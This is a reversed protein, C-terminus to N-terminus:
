DADAEVMDADEILTDSLIPVDLTRANQGAESGFLRSIMGMSGDADQGTASIGINIKSTQEEIRKWGEVMRFLRDMEQGVLVDPQGNVQESFSAMLIRQTQIEALTRLVAQRQDKTRIVVPIEYACPNGPQYSPCAASLFCTSCQRVSTATSAITMVQEIENGQDDYKVETIAEMLPLVSAAKHRM